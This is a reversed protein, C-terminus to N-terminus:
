SAKNLTEVLDGLLVERELIRLYGASYCFQIQRCEWSTGHSRNEINIKVNETGVIDEGEQYM